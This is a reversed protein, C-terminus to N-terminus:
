RVSCPRASLPFFERETSSMPRLLLSSARPSHKLSVSHRPLSAPATSYFSLSSRGTPPLMTLEARNSLAM